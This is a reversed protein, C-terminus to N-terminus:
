SEKPQQIVRHVADSFSVAVLDGMGGPEGVRIGVKCGAQRARVINMYRYCVQHICSSCELYNAPPQYSPAFYM